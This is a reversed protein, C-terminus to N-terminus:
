KACDGIFDPRRHTKERLYADRVDFSDGWGFLGPQEIGNMMREVRRQATEARGSSLVSLRCFDPFFWPGFAPGKGRSDAFSYFPRDQGIFDPLGVRLRPLLRRDSVTLGVCLSSTGTLDMESDKQLDNIPIPPFRV